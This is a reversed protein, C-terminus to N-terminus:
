QNQIQLDHTLPQTNLMDEFDSNYTNVSIIRINSAKCLSCLM